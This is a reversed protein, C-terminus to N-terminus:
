YCFDQQDAVVMLLPQPDVEEALPEVEEATLITGRHGVPNSVPPNLDIWIMEEMGDGSEAGSVAVFIFADASQNMRDSM